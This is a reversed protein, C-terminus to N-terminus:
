DKLELLLMRLNQWKIVFSSSINDLLGFKLVEEKFSFIQFQSLMSERFSSIRGSIIECCSCHFAFICSIMETLPYLLDEKAFIQPTLRMVTLLQHLPVIGLLRSVKILIPM